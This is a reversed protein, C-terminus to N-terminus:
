HSKVLRPTGANRTVLGAPSQVTEPVNPSAPVTTPREGRSSRRDSGILDLSVARGSTMGAVRDEAEWHSTILLLEM